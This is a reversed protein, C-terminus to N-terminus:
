GHQPAGPPRETPQGLIPALARATESPDSIAGPQAFVSSVRLSVALERGARDFITGRRSVLPVLRQYQRTARETLRRGHQIQITFLRAAITGLGLLLILFIALIRGKM